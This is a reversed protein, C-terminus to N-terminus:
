LHDSSIWQIDLTDIYNFIAYVAEYGSRSDGSLLYNLAYVEIIALGKKDFNHLVKRGDHNEEPAGLIGTYTCEIYERFKEAAVRCDPNDLPLEAASYQLIYHFVYINMRIIYYKGALTM